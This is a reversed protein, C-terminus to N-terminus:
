NCRCLGKVLVPVKNGPEPILIHVGKPSDSNLRCCHPLCNHLSVARLARSLPPGWLIGSAARPTTLVHDHDNEAPPAKCVFTCPCSLVHGTPSVPLCRPVDPDPEGWSPCCFHSALACLLAEEQPCLPKETSSPCPFLLIDPSCPQPPVPPAVPLFETTGAVWSLSAPLLM